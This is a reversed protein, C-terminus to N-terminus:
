ESYVPRAYASQTKKYRWKKKIHEITCKHM